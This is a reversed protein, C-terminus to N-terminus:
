REELYTRTKNLTHVQSSATSTYVCIIASEKKSSLKSTNAILLEVRVGGVRVGGVRVGGVRVGGVRVGGVRVGGVRVGGVRVGGM